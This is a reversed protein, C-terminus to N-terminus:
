ALASKREGFGDRSTSAETDTECRLFRSESSNLRYDDAASTIQPKGPLGTTFLGGALALSTPEIGPNPLDEPSPFPLGSWYEKRSFGMSM